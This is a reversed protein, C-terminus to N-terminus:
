FTSLISGLVNEYMLQAGPTRCQAEFSHEICSHGCVRECQSLGRNLKGPRPRTCPTRVVLASKSDFFPQNVLAQVFFILWDLSQIKKAYNFGWGSWLSCKIRFVIVHSCHCFFAPHECSLLACLLRTHSVQVILESVACRWWKMQYNPEAAVLRSM